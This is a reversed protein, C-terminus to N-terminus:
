TFDVFQAKYQNLWKDKAITRESYKGDNPWNAESIKVSGDPFIEEVFAVHGTDNVKSDQSIGTTFCMACNIKPESLVKYVGATQFIKGWKGGDRGSSVPWKIDIGLDTKVRYTVYETCQLGYGNKAGNLVDKIAERIKKTTDTAALNPQGVILNLIASDAQITTPTIESLYDARVWGQQGDKIVRFWPGDVIILEQGMKMKQTGDNSESQKRFNVDDEKVYIKQDKNM